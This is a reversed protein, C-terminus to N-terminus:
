AFISAFWNAVKEFFVVISDAFNEFAQAIKDWITPEVPEEEILDEVPPLNNPDANYHVAKVDAPHDAGMGDTDETYPKELWDYNTVAWDSNDNGDYIHYVLIDKIDSTTGGYYLEFDETLQFVSDNMTTVSDPLYVRKVKTNRFCDYGLETITDPVIVSLVEAGWNELITVTKGDLVSPITVELYFPEWTEEDRWGDDPNTTIMLTGDDLIQYIWREDEQCVIYNRNNFYRWVTGNEETYRMTLDDYDWLPEEGDAFLATVEYKEYIERAVLGSQYANGGVYEGSGPAAFATVSVSMLIFMALIVSTIKKFTNKM